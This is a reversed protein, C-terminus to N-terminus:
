KQNSYGRRYPTASPVEFAAYCQDFYHITSRDPVSGGEESMRRYKNRRYERKKKTKKKKLCVM